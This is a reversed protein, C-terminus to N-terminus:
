ADIARKTPQEGREIYSVDAMDISKLNLLKGGKGQKYWCMKKCDDSLKFLRKHAKVRGFMNSICFKDFNKGQKLRTEAEAAIQGISQVWQIVGDNSINGSCLEDENALDINLHLHTRWQLLDDRSECQVLLTREATVIEFKLQCPL